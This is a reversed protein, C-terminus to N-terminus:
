FNEKKCYVEIGNQYIENLTDSFASQLDDYAHENKVGRYASRGLRVYLLDVSVLVIRDEDTEDFHAIEGILTYTYGATPRSTLEEFDKTVYYYKAKIDLDYQKAQDSFPKLWNRVDARIEREMPVIEDTLHQKLIKQKKAKRKNIGEKVDEFLYGTITGDWYKEFLKKTRFTKRVHGQM